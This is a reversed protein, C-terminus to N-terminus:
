SPPQPAAGRRNAAAIGSALSSLRARAVDPDPPGPTATVGGLAPSGSLPQAPNRSRVIPVSAPEPVTAGANRRPLGAATYGVVASRPAEFQDSGPIVPYPPDATGGGDPGPSAVHHAHLYPVPPPYGTTVVAPREAPLGPNGLAGGAPVYMPVPQVAYPGGVPEGMVQYSVQDAGITSPYYGRLRARRFQDDTHA